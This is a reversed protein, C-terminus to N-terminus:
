GWKEMHKLVALQRALFLKWRIEESLDDNTLIDKQLKALDRRRYTTILDEDQICFDDAPNDAIAYHIARHPNTRFLKPKAIRISRVRVPANQIVTQHQVATAITPAALSTSVPSISTLTVVLISALRKM